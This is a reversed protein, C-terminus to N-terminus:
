PHAPHEGGHAPPLEEPQPELAREPRPEVRQGYRYVLDGGLLAGVAVIVVGVASLVVPGVPSTTVDLDRSRLIANALFLGGAVLQLTMHTVAVKWATAGAPIRLFDSFGALVAVVSIVLAAVLLTFAGKVFPGGDDVLYSIGDFLLSAPYLAIPFHVLAPHLPRGRGGRLLNAM